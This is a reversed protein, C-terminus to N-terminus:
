GPDDKFIRNQVLEAYLGGDYSHNIEETMMGYLMPSIRAVPQDAAISLSLSTVPEVARVATTLSLGFVLLTSLAFFPM